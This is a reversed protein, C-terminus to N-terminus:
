PHAIKEFSAELPRAVPDANVRLQDIGLGIRMKPRLPEIAVSPVEERQLVLDRAPDRDREIEFKEARLGSASGLMRVRQLKNEACASCTRFRGRRVTECRYNAQVLM